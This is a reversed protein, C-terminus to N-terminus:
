PKLSGEKTFTFQRYYVRREREMSSTWLTVIVEGDQTSVARPPQFEPFSPKHGGKYTIGRGPVFDKGKEYLVTSFAMLGKEVWSKAIEQRRNPTAKKWGFSALASQTLEASEELYVSNLFAGEFRCDRDNAYAGIVIIKALEVPREICLRDLKSKFGDNKALAQRVAEDTSLDIVQAKAWGGLVVPLFVCALSLKLLNNM